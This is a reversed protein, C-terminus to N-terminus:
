GSSSGFLNDARMRVVGRVLRFTSQKGITQREAWVDVRQITERLLERLQLPDAKALTQRLTSFASM